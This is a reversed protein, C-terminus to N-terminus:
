AFDKKVLNSLSREACNAKLRFKDINKFVLDGSITLLKEPM